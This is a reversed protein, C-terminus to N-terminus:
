SFVTNKRSGLVIRVEEKRNEKKIQQKVKDHIAHILKM